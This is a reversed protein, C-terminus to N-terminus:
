PAVHTAQRCTGARRRDEFVYLDVVGLVPMLLGRECLAGLCEHVADPELGTLRVLERTNVTRGMLALDAATALVKTVAAASGTKPTTLDISEGPAGDVRVDLTRRDTPHTQLM